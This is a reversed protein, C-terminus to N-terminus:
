LVTHRHTFTTPGGIGPPPPDIGENLEPISCGLRAVNREPTVRDPALGVADLVSVHHGAAKATGAIYALGIQPRQPSVRPPALRGSDLVSVHHGAAKATGAIYALGIPLSPRLGTLATPNVYAPPHILQVHMRFREERRVRSKQKVGPTSRSALAAKAMPRGAASSQVLPLVRLMGAIRADPISARGASSGPHVAARGAEV